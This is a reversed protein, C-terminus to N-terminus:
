PWLFPPLVPARPKDQSMERRPSNDTPEQAWLPCTPVTWFMGELALDMARFLFLTRPLGSNMDSFWCGSRLPPPPLLPLPPPGVESPRPLARRGAGILCWVLWGLSSAASLPLLSLLSGHLIGSSSQMCSLGENLPMAM